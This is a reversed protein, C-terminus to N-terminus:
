GLGRCGTSKNQHRREVIELVCHIVVLPRRGPPQEYGSREEVPKKSRTDLEAEGRVGKEGVELQGDEEEM